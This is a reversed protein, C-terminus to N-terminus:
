FSQNFVRTAKKLPSAVMSTGLGSVGCNEPKVGVWPRTGGWKCCSWAKVDFIDVDKWSWCLQILVATVIVGVNIYHWYHLNCFLRKGRSLFDHKHLVVNFLLLIWAQAQFFFQYLWNEFSIVTFWSPRDTSLEDCNCTPQNCQRWWATAKLDLPQMVFRSSEM